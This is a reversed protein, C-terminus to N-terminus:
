RVWDTPLFGGRSLWQDLGSILEALEFGEELTLQQSDARETLARMRALATNPDM